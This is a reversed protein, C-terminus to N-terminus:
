QPSESKSYEQMKKNCYAQVDEKSAQPNAAQIKELCDKMLAEKDTQSPAAQQSAPPPQSPQSPPQQALGLTAACLATLAFGLRKM